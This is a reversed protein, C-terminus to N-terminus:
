QTSKLKVLLRKLRNSNTITNRDVSGGEFQDKLISLAYVVGEIDAKTFKVQESVSKQDLAQNKNLDVMANSVLTVVEKDDAYILLSEGLYFGQSEDHHIELYEQEVEDEIVVLYNDSDIVEVRINRSDSM